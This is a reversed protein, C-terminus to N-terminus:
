KLGAKRLAAIHRELMAPDKIPTRQKHVELSFNPNLRLVEAAEAQAEAEQGLEGYVAALDLHAGLFNPYRALYQTLPAIAEEPRGALYYADGISMLHGDPTLPQRCIAEEITQLAEDSRGVHSLAQALFAYVSAENPDLAIAREIEVFASDYQKQNLHVIGLLLHGGPNAENLSVLRQATALAQELAKSDQSLQFVWHSLYSVTLNFHAPVSMPSRDIAEQSASVAQAYHGTMNYAWSLDHLYWVPYHPNLRMAQQVSQLAEEPKGTWNLMQAQTFYSHENNPDLAIARACATLAQDYQQKLGYVLGLVAYATPLSDDLAIAKQALTFARELTQPDVSWRNVWEVWYTGGLVAYAEAYQPDLAIAKELMQRAQVTVEEKKDLILYAMGRLFADYAELNDTHKRAAQGQEQLVLQLKLTTVIKQVIEDQLAFINQLPRDYRESWLHYGTIADILQMTIRVQGDAKLVSGELVYRVGMERGIDQAKVAKGKYTFASNRAIVFLSSIQSLDGTLVDTLGDSFYDQGPDGSLNQFPLVIISPKDPLPLAPQTNPALLQPNPPLLSLYQVTVIVGVLLFLGTFLVGKSLWLRTPASGERTQPGADLLREPQPSPDHNQPTALAPTMRASAPIWPSDTAVPAQSDQIGAPAQGSNQRLVPMVSNMEQANAEPSQVGSELHNGVKSNQREGKAKQNAENEQSQVKSEPSQIEAVFRFGRRHVTEIFRPQRANDRLAQRVEQICTTLAADSVVADPWVAAFLEEKTVVQGAREALYRLVSTAKGTM